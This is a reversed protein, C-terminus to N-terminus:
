EWEKVIREALKAILHLGPNDPGYDVGPIGEVTIALAIPGSKTTVLGVDSRLHDLAGSKSAVRDPDIRRGIGDKYQQRKLVAVVEASAEANLFKGTALLELIRVMEKATSSGIGWKKNEEKAGEKSWGQAEKLQKGDGRVKRMSWTSKFGLAAMRANVQDATIREIVLNTATNDSVVIMLNAVDRLRLRTGPTFEQLVGSGSVIDQERLPLEEDWRLKGEAAEAHLALLIPLKITSATRVKEDGRIEISKGSGLHKAALYVTGPGQAALAALDKELDAGWVHLSFLSLLIALRM